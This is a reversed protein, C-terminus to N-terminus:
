FPLDEYAIPSVQAGDFVDAVADAASTSKPSLFEIDAVSLSVNSRREGDKEYRSQHLSGSVCVKIGKKIYPALKEARNSFLACQIWSTYDDSNKRYENVAVSFNCVATGNATQRLEADAGVFGSIFAKNISM